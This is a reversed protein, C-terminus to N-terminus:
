EASGTARPPAAGPGTWTKICRGPDVPAADSRIDIRWGTLRAALRANQGEKGIALSLQFDPVIVRATKAREDVCTGFCGEGAVICERRFAGPGGHLRHHRDERRRAREDRQARARGDPRHLRGQRERRARHLAGRDELPPRGRPGGRRDRRHRRRDRPGRARVAQAGPEPAHAVAHDAARPRRPSVGVVYRRSAADGHEYRRGRSRSAGPPLWSGETDGVQVVVMGRANARADRQVVGAM